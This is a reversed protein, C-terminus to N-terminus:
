MDQGQLSKELTLSQVPTMTTLGMTGTITNVVTQCVLQREALEAFTTAPGTKVARNLQDGSPPKQSHVEQEIEGEIANDEAAPATAISRRWESASLSSKAIRPAIIRPLCRQLDQTHAPRSCRSYTSLSFLPRAVSSPGRRAINLM